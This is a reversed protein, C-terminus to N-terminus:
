NEITEFVPSFISNDTKDLWKSFLFRTFVFSKVKNGCDETIDIFIGLNLIINRRKTLVIVRFNYLYSRPFYRSQSM